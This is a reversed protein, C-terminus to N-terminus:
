HDEVLITWIIGRPDFNAVGQPDNPKVYPYIPFVDVIAKFSMEEKVAQSINM